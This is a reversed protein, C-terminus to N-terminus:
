DVINGLYVEFRASGGSPNTFTAFRGSPDRQLSVGGRMLQMLRVYRAADEPPCRGELSIQRLHDGLEGNKEPSLGSWFKGDSEDLFGSDLCGVSNIFYREVTSPDDDTSILRIQLMSGATSEGNLTILDGTFIPEDPKKADCGALPTLIISLAAAVSVSRM